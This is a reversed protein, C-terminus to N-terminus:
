KLAKLIDRTTPVLEFTGDDFTYLNLVRENFVAPLTMGAIVISYHDGCGPCVLVERVIYAENEPLTIGHMRCFMVFTEYHAGSNTDICVEDGRKFRPSEM